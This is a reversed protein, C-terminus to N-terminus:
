SLEKKWRKDTILKDIDIKTISANAQDREIADNMQTVIQKVNAAQKAGLSEYGHASLVVYLELQMGELTRKYAESDKISSLNKVNEQM